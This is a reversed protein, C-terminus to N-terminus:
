NVGDMIKLNEKVTENNPDIELVKNWILRARHTQETRAYLIGLNIMADIYDMKYKIALEYESIAPQIFNKRAESLTDYAFALNFHAEPNKPDIEIAQYFLAIAQKLNGKKQNIFGRFLYVQAVDPNIKEVEICQRLAEEFQGQKTYMEILNLRPQILLKDKEIAELFVEEARQQENKKLYIEGVYSLYNYYDPAIKPIEMLEQLADDYKGEEILCRAYIEVQLHRKSAYKDNLAQMIYKKSEKYEGRQLLAKSLNMQALYDNSNKELVDTWLMIPDSWIENRQYTLASYAIVIAITIYFPLQKSKIQLILSGVIICFGISPLYLYREACIIGLPFINLVPLLTFLFWFYGLGFTNRKVLAWVACTFIIVNVFTALAVKWNFLIKPISFYGIYDGILNVPYVLLKKYYLFVKQMLFVTTFFRGTPYPPTTLRLVFVRMFFYLIGILFFPILYILIKKIDTRLFEGINKNRRWYEILVILAPLVLSVEKSFIALVFSLCSIIFVWIKPSDYWKLYAILSILIFLTALLDTRGSIFTVSETHIPHAAFLIAAILSAGKGWEREKFLILCLFFVLISNALHLLVNTLHYYFAKLRFIKYNLLYTLTTIPRYFAIQSKFESKHFFRHTFIEPINSYSKVTPNYVILFEDDYIFGNDLSNCYIFFAVFLIIIIKLLNRNKNNM